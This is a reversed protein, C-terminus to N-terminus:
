AASRDRRLVFRLVRAAVGADLEGFREALPRADGPLLANPMRLRLLSQLTTWSWGKAKALILILEPDVVTILREATVLSLGVCSAVACIVEALGDREAFGAVDEEDVPRMLTIAGITDLAERYDLSGTVAL